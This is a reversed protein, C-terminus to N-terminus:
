RSYLPGRAQSHQTPIVRYGDNRREETSAERTVFFSAEAPSAANHIATAHGLSSHHPVRRLFEAQLQPSLGSDRIDKVAKSYMQAHERSSGPLGRTKESDHVVRMGRIDHAMERNSPADLNMHQLLDMKTRENLTASALLSKAREPNLRQLEKLDDFM